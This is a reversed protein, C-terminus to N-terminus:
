WSGSLFRSAGLTPGLLSDPTRTPSQPSYKTESLVQSGRSSPSWLGKQHWGKGLVM